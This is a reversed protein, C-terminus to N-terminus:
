RTRSRIKLARSHEEFVADRPHEKFINARVRESYDAYLSPLLGLEMENDVLILILHGLEYFLGLDAEGQIVVIPILQAAEGIIRQTTLGQVALIVQELGSQIKTLQYTIDQAALVTQLKALCNMTQLDTEGIAGLVIIELLELATGKLNDTEGQAVLVIQLKGIDLFTGLDSKSQVVLIIQLKATDLFTALDTESQPVIVVQEKSLDQRVALDIIGNETLVVQLKPADLWTALNSVTQDVVITQLKSLDAFIATDTIEHEVIFELTTDEAVEPYICKDTAGHAVVITIIAVEPEGGVKDSEEQYVLIIQLKATDLFTVLSTKDHAVIIEVLKSLEPLVRLESEGQVALIVQLKALENRTILTTLDHAVLVIQGQVCSMTQLDAETQVALIEQILPSQVKILQETIGQVALLVQLKITEPLIRSDTEGQAVFIVQTKGREDIAPIYMFYDDAEGVIVLVIQGITAQDQDKDYFTGLTWQGAEALIIQELSCSYVQADANGQKVIQIEILGISEVYLYNEAEDVVALIEIETATEDIWYGAVIDHEALIIQEPTEVMIFQDATGQAARVYILWQTVNYIANDTEGVVALVEDGLAGEPWIYWASLDHVALIVQIKGTESILSFNDAETQVALIIQLKTTDLFTAIDANTQVALLVQLKTTDLFIQKDAEIQVALVVQEKATESRIVIDNRDQTVHITVTLGIENLIRSDTIGQAALVVQTKATEAFRELDTNGQVALIVVTLGIEDALLIGPKSGNLYVLDFYAGDLWSFAGRKVVPNVPLYNDWGTQVVIITQTSATEALVRNESEGQVVLITQTLGTEIYTVPGYGLIQPLRKSIKAPM